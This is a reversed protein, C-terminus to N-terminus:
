QSSIKNLTLKSALACKLIKIDDSIGTDNSIFPMTYVILFNDNTFVLACERESTMVKGVKCYVKITWQKLGVDPIGSVLGFNVFTEVSKSNFQKIDGQVYSNIQQMDESNVLKQIFYFEVMKQEIKLGQLSEIMKALYM